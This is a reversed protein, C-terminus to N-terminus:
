NHFTDIDKKLKEIMGDYDFRLVRDDKPDAGGEPFMTDHDKTGQPMFTPINDTGGDMIKSLREQAEEEGILVFKQFLRGPMLPMLLKMVSQIITGVPCSILLNLRDPYGKVLASLLSMLFQPNPPPPSNSDSLVVFDTVGKPMASIGADALLILANVQAEADPFWPMRNTRIWLIPRGAHDLGNWYMSGYNLSVALAKAKEFTEPDALAAPSNEALPDQAMKLLDQLHTANDKRWTLLDILKSTSYEIPRRITPDKSYPKSAVSLIYDDSLYSADSPFSEALSSRITALEEKSVPFTKEEELPTTM